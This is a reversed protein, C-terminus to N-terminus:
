ARVFQPAMLEEREFTIEDFSFALSHWGQSDPNARVVEAQAILRVNGCHDPRKVLDVELHVPTGVPIEFPCLARLGSSSIDITTLQDFDTERHGAIRFIRLPLRLHARCYARRENPVRVAHTPVSAMGRPGIWSSSIAETHGTEPQDFVEAVALTSSAVSRQKSVSKQIRTRRASRMTGGKLFFAEPVAFAIHLRRAAADIATRESTEQEDVRVNSSSRYHCTV